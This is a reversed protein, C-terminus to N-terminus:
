RELYIDDSLEPQCARLILRGSSNIKVCYFTKEPSGYRPDYPISTLYDPALVGEGLDLCEDTTTETIKYFDMENLEWYFGESANAAHFRIRAQTVIGEEFTKEVWTRDAFGGQYVDIWAGDKYVDLDVSDVQSGARAYFMVKDSLIQPRSFYVYSSWQAANMNHYSRALSITSDDYAYPVNEWVGDPDDYGTTSVWGIAGPSTFFNQDDGSFTGASNRIQARYHYNVGSELDTILQDFSEGTIKGSVWPTDTGYSETTGYQFRYEVPEGGDDTVEGHLIAVTEEISSADLTNGSPLLIEAATEYFQFEYLWYQYGGVKYNYRFRASDVSGKPFSLEVWQCNWTSQDGGQFVDVWAGDVHVDVDVENIHANLYDVNLRIRDSNIPSSM